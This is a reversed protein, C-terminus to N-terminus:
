RDTHRKSWDKADELLPERIENEMTPDCCFLVQTQERFPEERPALLYNYLLAAVVGASLPGAWYVQFDFCSLRMGKGLTWCECLSIESSWLVYGIIKLLSSYSQLGLPDLQTSVVDQTALRCVMDSSFM